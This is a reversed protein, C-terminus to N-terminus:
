IQIAILNNDTEEKHIIGKMEIEIINLAKFRTNKNQITARPTRHIKLIHAVLIGGIMPRPSRNIRGGIMGEKILSTNSM